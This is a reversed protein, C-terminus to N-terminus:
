PLTVGIRAFNRKQELRKRTLWELVMAKSKRTGWKDISVNTSAAKKPAVRIWATWSEYTMQDGAANYYSRTERKIYGPGPPVPKRVRPPIKSIVSDRYKIAAGRAKRNGGCKLDSFFKSVPYDRCEFRVWWGHSRKYDMRIINRLAKSHRM